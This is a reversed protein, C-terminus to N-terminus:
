IFPEYQRKQRRVRAGCIPCDASGYVKAGCEQCYATPRRYAAASDLDWADPDQRLTPKAEVTREAERQM